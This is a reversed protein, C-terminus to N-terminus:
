SCRAGYGRIKDLVFLVVNWLKVDILKKLFDISFRQVPVTDRATQKQGSPPAGQM